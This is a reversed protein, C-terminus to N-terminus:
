VTVTFAILRRSYIYGCTVLRYLKHLLMDRAGLVRTTKVVYASKATAKAKIKAPDLLGNENRSGISYTRLKTESHEEILV